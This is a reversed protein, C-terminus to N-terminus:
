SGIRVEVETKTRQQSNGPTLRGNLTGIIVFDKHRFVSKSVCKVLRMKLRLTAGKRCM